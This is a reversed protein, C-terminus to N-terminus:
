TIEALPLTFWFTAGRGVSSEVGIRGRHEEVIERAIALGLGTGAATEGESAQEFRMFIRHQDSDSIGPGEDSVSV